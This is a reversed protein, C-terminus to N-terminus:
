GHYHQHHYYRHNVFNVIPITALICTPHGPFELKIGSQAFFNERTQLIWVSNPPLCGGIWHADPSRERIIAALTRLLSGVEM